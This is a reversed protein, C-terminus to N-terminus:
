ELFYESFQGVEGESRKAPTQAYGIEDICIKTPSLDSVTAEEVGVCRRKHKVWFSPYYRANKRKDLQITKGCRACVVSTPTFSTIFKDKQLLERRESENLRRRPRQVATQADPLVVSLNFQFANTFKVPDRSLKGPAQPVGYGALADNLRNDWLLPNWWQYEFMSQFPPM